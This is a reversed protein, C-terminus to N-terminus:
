ACAKFDEADLTTEVHKRLEAVRFGTESRSHREWITQFKGGLLRLKDSCKRDVNRTFFSVSGRAGTEFVTPVAFSLKDVSWLLGARRASLVRDNHDNNDIATAEDKDCAKRYVKLHLALERESLGTQAAVCLDEYVFSLPKEIQAYRYTSDATVFRGYESFLGVSAHVFKTRTVAQLIEDFHSCEPWAIHARAFFHDLQHSLELAHDSYRMRVWGHRRLADTARWVAGRSMQVRSSLEALSVPGVVAIAQLVILLRDFTASPSAGIAGLDFTYTM